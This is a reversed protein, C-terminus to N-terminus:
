EALRPSSISACPAIRSSLHLRLEYFRTTFVSLTKRRDCGSTSIRPTDRTGMRRLLTRVWLWISLTGANFARILDKYDSNVIISVTMEGYRVVLEWVRAMREAPTMESAVLRDMEGDDEGLRIKRVHWIRESRPPDM